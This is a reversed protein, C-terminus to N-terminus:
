TLEHRAWIIQYPAMEITLMGDEGTRHRQSSLLDTWHTKPLIGVLRLVLRVADNAVNHLCLVYKNGDVEGRLLAFV